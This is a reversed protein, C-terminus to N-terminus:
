SRGWVGGPRRSRVPRFKVQRAPPGAPANEVSAFRKGEHYGPPRPYPLGGALDEGQRPQGRKGGMGGGVSPDLLGFKDSKVIVHSVRPSSKYVFVRATPDYWRSQTDVRMEAAAASALDECDGEAYRNTRLQGILQNYNLWKEGPDARQYRLRGSRILDVIRPRNPGAAQMQGVDVGVLGGNLMASADSVSLSLQPHLPM